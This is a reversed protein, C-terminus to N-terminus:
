KIACLTCFETMSDVIPLADFGFGPIFESRPAKPAFVSKSNECKVNFGAERIFEMCSNKEGAAILEDTLKYREKKIKYTEDDDEPSFTAIIYFLGNCIRHCEKLASKTHPIEQLGFCTTMVDVSNERFPSATADFAM